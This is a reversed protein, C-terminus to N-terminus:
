LYCLASYLRYFDSDSRRARWHAQHPRRRVLVRASRLLVNGLAGNGADVQQRAAPFLVFLPFDHKSFFLLALLVFSDCDAKDQSVEEIFLFLFNEIVGSGLGAIIM